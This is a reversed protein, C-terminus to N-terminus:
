RCDHDVFAFLDAVRLCAQRMFKELRAVATVAGFKEAKSFQDRMAAVRGDFVNLGFAMGDPGRRVAAPTQIYNEVTERECTRRALEQQRGRRRAAVAQRQGQERRLREGEKRAILAHSVPDDTALFASNESLPEPAGVNKIPRTAASYFSRTRSSHFCLLLLM